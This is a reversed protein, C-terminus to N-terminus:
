QNLMEDTTVTFHTDAKLNLILLQHYPHPHYFGKGHSEHYMNTLKTLYNTVVRYELWSITIIKAPICGLHFVSPFPWDAAAAPQLEPV